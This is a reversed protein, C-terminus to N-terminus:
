KILLMKRCLEIGNTKLQYFYIGSGVEEGLNNKGDWIVTYGGPKKEEDVLNRVAQGLLNYVKLTVHAPHHIGGGVTFQINTIANFPNPYNQELEFDHPRNADNTEDGKIGTHISTDGALIFVEGRNTPYFNEASFIIDDTGDGNVDGASAVCRGVSQLFDPPLDDETMWRDKKADFKPGGLYLEVAGWGMGWCIDGNVIDTYGDGNVDGAFAYNDSTSSGDGLLLVPLTDPPSGGFYVYPYGCIFGLLIGLDQYGDNNFDGLKAVWYGGFVTKLQYSLSEPPNLVLSPITDFGETGGFFVDVKAMMSDNGAYYYGERGVVIDIWGDGNFDLAGATRLPRRGSGPTGVGGTMNWDPITDMPDGGYYLYLRGFSVGEEYNPALILLDDYGDKNVDGAPILYRGFYDGSYESPLIVDPVTDLGSQSGYFIYCYHLDSTIVDKQGDGNVDGASSICWHGKLLLDPVTDMPNGGYYVYTKGRSPVTVGVDDFGDHNIDGLGAVTTGMNSASDPGVMKVIIQMTHEARVVQLSLFLIFFLFLITKNIV